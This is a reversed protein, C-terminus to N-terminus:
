RRRTRGPKIRHLSQPHLLAPNWSAPRTAATRLKYAQAATWYVPIAIFQTRLHPHNAPVSARPATNVPQPIGPAGNGGDRSRATGTVFRATVRAPSWTESVQVM